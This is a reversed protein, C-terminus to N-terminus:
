RGTVIDRLRNPMMVALVIPGVLVGVIATMVFFHVFRAFDYGGFLRNYSIRDM